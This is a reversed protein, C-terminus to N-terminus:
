YGFILLLLLTNFSINPFGFRVTWPLFLTNFLCNQYSDDSNWLRSAATSFCSDFWRKSKYIFQDFSVTNLYNKGTGSRRTQYSRTYPTISSSFYSSNDTNIYKYILLGNSILEKLLLNGNCTM